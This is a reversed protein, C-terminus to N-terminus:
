LRTLRINVILVQGEGAGGIEGGCHKCDSM